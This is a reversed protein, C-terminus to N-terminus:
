SLIDSSCVVIPMDKMTHLGAPAEVVRPIANLVISATGIDGHIGGPVKVDINPTGTITISDYSEPAGLYAQFELSIVPEGGRYACALQRIGAARGAPVTIYNSSVVKDTIVPEITESIKEIEWGLAGAIMSISEPMGVHGFSGGDVRKQFELATLGAGIKQQFPIRRSCADQIRTARIAKVEKCVGTMFLPWADMLFGPNIGTALVTVNHTKAMDDLRVALESHKVYPFSLEECTSVVNVGSKVISALQEYVVDFKSGTTHIVIDPKVSKLLAEAHDSITIGLEKDLGAAKGLDKGAKDPAIDVAGVLEINSRGVSFKVIYCGIPGCGFQVTRYKKGM